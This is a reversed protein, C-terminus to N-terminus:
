AGPLFPMLVSAQTGIESSAAQMRSVSASISCVPNRAGM